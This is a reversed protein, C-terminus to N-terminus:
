YFRMLMKNSGMLSLKMLLTNLLHNNSPYFGRYAMVDALTGSVHALYTVAEDHTIPIRTARAVVYALAVVSLIRGVWLDASGAGRSLAEHSGASSSEARAWSLRVQGM